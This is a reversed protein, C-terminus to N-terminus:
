LGGRYSTATIGYKDTENVTVVAMGVGDLATLEDAVRQSLVECTPDGETTYVPGLDALVEALPDDENLVTAHDYQDIVDSVDKLDLPMNGEGTDAMDVQVEVDFAMNHGHVNNCAGDYHLLRHATSTSREVSLTRTDGGPSENGGDTEIQEDDDNSMRGRIYGSFLSQLM